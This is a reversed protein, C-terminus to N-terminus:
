LSRGAPVLIELPVLRARTRRVARRWCPSRVPAACRTCRAHWGKSLHSFPIAILITSRAHATVPPTSVWRSSFTAAAMSARPLRSPTAWNGVVTEPCLSSNAQSCPKPGTTRTPM